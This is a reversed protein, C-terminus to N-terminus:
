GLISSVRDKAEQGEGDQGVAKEEYGGVANNACLRMFKYESSCTDLAVSWLPFWMVKTSVPPLYPYPPLSKPPNAEM